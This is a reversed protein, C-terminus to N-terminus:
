AADSTPPFRPPENRPPPKEGAPRALLVAALAWMGLLLGAVAWPTVRRGRRAAIAATLPALALNIMVSTAITTAPPAPWRMLVFGSAFSALQAILNM